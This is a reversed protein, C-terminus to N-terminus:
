RAGGARAFARELVRRAVVTALERKYGDSVRIDKVMKMGGVAAVAAKHFLEPAPSEGELAGAAAKSVSPLLQFSGIVLRASACRGKADLAVCAAASLLGFTNATEAFKEFAAGSRPRPAPISIEELYEGPKMIALPQQRYCEGSTLTRLGREGRVAFSAGTACYIIPLDSWIFLRVANGGVTIMNRNPTAAVNSAAEACVGNMFSRAAESRALREITVYAGIHLGRSDRRIRALGLARLSVLESVKPPVSFSFSVGGG